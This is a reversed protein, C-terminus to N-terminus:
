TSTECSASTCFLPILRNTRSQVASSPPGGEGSDPASGAETQRRREEPQTEDQQGGAGWAGPSLQHGSTGPSGHQGRNQWCGAWPRAPCRVKRPHPPGLRPHIKLGPIQEWPARKHPGAPNGSAQSRQASPGAPTLPGPLFAQSHPPPSMPVRAAPFNRVNKRQTRSSMLLHPPHMKYVPFYTM